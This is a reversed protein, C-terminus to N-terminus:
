PRLRPNRSADVLAKDYQPAAFRTLAQVAKIQYQVEANRSFVEVYEKESYVRAKPSLSKWDARVKDEIRARESPSPGRMLIEILTPGVLATHPVLRELEGDSCEVCGLWASLAAQAAGSREDGNAPACGLSFMAVILAAGAAVCSTRTLVVCDIRM